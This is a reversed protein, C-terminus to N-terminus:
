IHYEKFLIKFQCIYNIEVTFSEATSEKQHKTSVFNVLIMYAARQEKYLSIMRLLPCVPEIKSQHQPVYEITFADPLNRLPKFNRTPKDLTQKCRCSAKSGTYLPKTLDADKMLLSIACLQTIM